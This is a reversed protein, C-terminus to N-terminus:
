RLARHDKGPRLLLATVAFLLAYATLVLGMRHDDIGLQNTRAGTGYITVGLKSERGGSAKAASPM